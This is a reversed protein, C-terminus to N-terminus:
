DRTCLILTTLSSYHPSRPPLLLPSSTCELLWLIIAFLQLHKPNGRGLMRLLLLINAILGVVIALATVAIVWRPDKEFLQGGGEKTVYMRWRDACGSLALLTLVPGFAGCLLPTISAWYLFWPRHKKRESPSHTSNTESHGDSNVRQLHSPDQIQGEDPPSLSSELASDEVTPSVMQAVAVPAADKSTTM